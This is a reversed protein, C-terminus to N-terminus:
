DYDRQIDPPAPGLKGFLRALHVDYKLGTIEGRILRWGRSKYYYFPTRDKACSTNWSIARSWLIFRFIVITKGRGRLSSYLQAFFYALGFRFTM